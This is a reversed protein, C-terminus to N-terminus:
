LKIYGTESYKSIFENYKEAVSEEPLENIYRLLNNMDEIYEHLKNFYSNLLETGKRATFEELSFKGDVTCPLYLKKTTLGLYHPVAFDSRRENGAFPYGYAKLINCDKLDVTIRKTQWIVTFTTDFLEEPLGNRAVEHMWQQKINFKVVPTSVVETTTDEDIETNDADAVEMIATTNMSSVDSQVRNRNKKAM